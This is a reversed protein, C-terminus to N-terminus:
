VFGADRVQDQGAALGRQVGVQQLDDAVGVLQAVDDAQVAVAAAQGVAGEHVVQDFGPQVMDLDGQRGAPRLQVVGDVARAAEVLRHAADFVGQGARQVGDGVGGQHATLM